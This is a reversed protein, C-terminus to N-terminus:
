NKMAFYVESYFWYMKDTQLALDLINDFVNISVKRPLSNFSESLADTCM